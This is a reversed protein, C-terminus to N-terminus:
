PGARGGILGVEKNFNRMVVAMKENIERVKSVEDPGGKTVVDHRAKRLAAVQREAVNGRAALSIAGPHDALYDAVSIGARVRGKIENQAENAKTVNEYFKESQGSHGATSGYLRGILPIKYPPLEEGTFPAAATSAVKGAERGIGGTLQGIVYDIQDPTPSWGGPTYETGGTIANIADALGKAWPTASDKSRQLGPKPDLSNRNEIFIPKGTWDKNQALAVFPDLVTPAAIQLAPSSGGMPNFADALVQFLAVMQKGATKDKYVAMEVALRGINPLFQFGLPMPISLYADKGTPIVISREKVFEPIKEWEDDEDGAGGMMAIGLLANVVGLLVGGALIKRGAPGSLTQAMRTTGQVAANFFAYLAGLERTQRGKRNFNVTLNKALSAAREKSMGNDIAAKYAALRTANEMAENYDSLWDAVAHAAQSVKGRDLAQLESLLSKSRSEADLFLDRYGTTGGVRNFEEFLTAWAGTKPMRGKNKLVEKLISLTDTMVEKQKGALETTSLNLAAEQTDRMLNIVGFIPNYQTNISAFYRTMKGVVPILYHLDDVDLNKLAQAMRLAQPNHENMAIAVDKGAIRLLLVNPRTKYLPDPVTKVFGTAKDITDITPVDGVKWVDALPNQRAMLYLKRMVHNKEGRTLAAERQMAIHGLINTVSQNSGTRRKAADGKVSFGQGIPHNVSDPHAEDRHLPIYYQYTKRWTDLSERSMLGYSQLLQLTGENLADVRAALADLNARREPTLGNMIAAAAADSLGSLSRREEETGRFAQAGNWQLLEGRADNLAQELAVTAAGKANASQLRQELNRVRTTSKQQGADIEAQNPNRKAMEANAEPAHRAHLFTELDQVGVSRAKMEALLPRLEAKLFEETRHALRKHYLEEGLYADNMDTITGGISQIHERLRKLDVYKDQLEYIIKDLNKPSLIEAAKAKARQWANRVPAGSPGNYWDSAASFRIDGSSQDSEWQDVQSALPEGNADVARSAKVKRLSLMFNWIAGHRAGQPEAKGSSSAASSNFASDPSEERLVVEHVYMRHMNQDIRVEVLERYTKEGIAVPAAIVYADPKNAVKPLQGLVVGNELVKPVLYFANAKSRSLGHGISFSAATEDLVIRGLDPNVVGGGHEDAWYKGVWQALLKLKPFVPVEDGSMMAIPKGTDLWELKAASEWDGFWAKFEPTRVQQWQHENLNSPNGNPALRAESNFRVAETGSALAANERMLEAGATLARDLATEQGATRLGLVRSVLRVFWQWASKLISGAPAPVSRLAEQFRPNSFAEAVFEDLSSMGYQGRLRGSRQVHLFLRRMRMASVGGSAIAKLTAAHVLEHLIHREAERPTFLAVTDTRPNYAAAYRQARSTNGFQWGGQSDLTITSSVGIRALHTAM